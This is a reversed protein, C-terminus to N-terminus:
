FGSPGVSPGYENDNHYGKDEQRAKLILRLFLWFPLFILSVLAAPWLYEM